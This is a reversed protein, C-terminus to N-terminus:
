MPGNIWATQTRLHVDGLSPETLLIVKEMLRQCGDLFEAGLGPLLLLLFKEGVIISPPFRQKLYSFGAQASQCIGDGNM